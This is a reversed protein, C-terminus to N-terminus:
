AEAPVLKERQEFQLRLQREEILQRELEAVKAELEQRTPLPVSRLGLQTRYKGVLEASVVRGGLDAALDRSAREAVDHDPEASDSARILDMIKVRQVLTLTKTRTKTGTTESM